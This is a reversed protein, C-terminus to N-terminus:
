QNTGSFAMARTARPLRAERALFEAVTFMGALWTCLNFADAGTASPTAELSRRRDAEAYAAGVLDRALAVLREAVEESASGPGGEADTRTSKRRQRLFQRAIGATLLAKHQERAEPEKAPIPRTDVGPLWELVLYTTQRSLETALAKRLRQLVAAPARAGRELQWGASLACVSGSRKILTISFADRGAEHKARQEASRLARLVAGLPATHHAVVVGCSASAHEGMTPLALASTHDRAWGDALRFPLHSKLANHDANDLCASPDFGSYAARLATIAPILDALGLMALLDDGGAYLLKGCFSSEVIAPALMLSFTQLSASIAAHYVPDPITRSGRAATEREPRPPVAGSLWAGMRDGDMLVLAYYTELPAGSAQKIWRKLERRQQELGNTTRREPDACVTKEDLAELVAPLWRAIHALDAATPPAEPKGHELARELRPPLHLPECRFQARLEDVVQRLAAVSDAQLDSVPHKALLRDITVAIAMAHTSVAPADIPRGAATGFQRQLEERYLAPWTRKLCCLACLREGARAWRPRRTAVRDWPAARGYRELAARELCLWEREGCLSCRYGHQPLQEFCHTAKAAALARQAQAYVERYREGLSAGEEAADDGVTPWAAVAWHLEPFGRLQEEIQEAGVSDHAQEGAVRLVAQWARHAHDRAAKRVQKTLEDVLSRAQERPVIAMFRNPIAPAFLAEPRDAEPFPGFKVLTQRLADPLATGNGLESLLWSDAAPLAQLAPSILADPGLQAALPRIAEWALHSLLHSGAWLDTSKRAQAIFSQVPGIAVVLLAPTQREGTDTYEAGVLASVVHAFRWLTLDPSDTPSFPLNALACAPGSQPPLLRWLALLRTRPSDAIAFADRLTQALASEAREWAHVDTITLPAPSGTIPHTARPRTSHPIAADREAQHPTPTVLPCSTALRRARRILEREADTPLGLGDRMRHLTQQLARASKQTDGGAVISRWANMSQFVVELWALLKLRWRTENM